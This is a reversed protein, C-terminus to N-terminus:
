CLFGKAKLTILFIYGKWQSDTPSQSKDFERFHNRSVIAFFQETVLFRPFVAYIACSRYYILLVATKTQTIIANLNLVCFSKLRKYLSHTTSPNRKKFGVM